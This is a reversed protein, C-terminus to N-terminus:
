ENLVDVAKVRKHALQISKLKSSDPDDEVKTQKPNYCAQCCCCICSVLLSVVILLGAGVYYVHPAEISWNYVDSALDPNDLTWMKDPDDVKPALRENSFRM